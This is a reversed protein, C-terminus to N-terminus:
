SAGWPLEETPVQKSASKVALEEEIDEIRDAGMAAKVWAIVDGETLEDFPIFSDGEKYDLTTTAHIEADDDKACWHVVNVVKSQGKATKLYELRDVSWKVSM